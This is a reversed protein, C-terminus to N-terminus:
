MEEIEKLLEDLLDEEKVKKIVKGKKFIIGIGDGGAIGIDAEKAEGPGNVPCGMLAVKIDKNVTQLKVQAKNVIDILDIKTRSCTPCSIIEVGDSIIDLSKLIERGVRVEEVPNTTLSVRITDGIGKSLLAGIGVSSKVTGSFAPGSETIGLHLPYDCLSSFKEYSNISLMVNSAKLSVKIDYFNLSELVEIEELASYCISNENVGNYKNLFEKKISGSNVGVRIPIGYYKCANVVERIKNKDGINGPNIRLCDIGNEASAIALRYDYQIDAITPINIQSKITPISKADELDNVAFRIIDCGVSELENIQRVTSQVDKTITNTMSQVTIKSHGGVPVDGVFIKKTVKRNM